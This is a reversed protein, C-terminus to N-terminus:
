KLKRAGYKQQLKRSAKLEDLVNWGNPAAPTPFYFNLFVWRHNKLVLQPTVSPTASEDGGWVGHVEAWCQGEKLRVKKVVYREAAGDAGFFPDADLSVLDSGAKDQAASDKQL